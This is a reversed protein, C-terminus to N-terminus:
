VAIYRLGTSMYVDMWNELNAVRSISELRLEAKHGVFPTVGASLTVLPM